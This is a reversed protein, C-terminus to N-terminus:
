NSHRGKGNEIVSWCAVRFEGFVGRNELRWAGIGHRSGAYDFLQRYTSESLERLDILANVKISWRDFCPRTICIGTSKGANENTGRSMHVRWDPKSGTKPDVIYLREDLIKVFATVLTAKGSTLQRKGDLRIWKGATVLNAMLMERPIFFGKEDTRDELKSEAEETPTFQGKAHKPPKSGSQIGLLTKESMPNLLLPTVGEITVEVHQLSLQTKGNEEIKVKTTMKNRGKRQNLKSLSVQIYEFGGHLANILYILRYSIVELDIQTRQGRM